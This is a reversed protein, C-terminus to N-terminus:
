VPRAGLLDMLLFALGVGAAGGAAEFAIGGVPTDRWEWLLLGALVGRLTIGLNVGRVHSTPEGPAVAESLQLRPPAGMPRWTPVPTARRIPIQALFANM